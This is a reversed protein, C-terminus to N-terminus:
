KQAAPDTDGVLVIQETPCYLEIPADVHVAHGAPLTCRVVSRAAETEVSRQANKNYTQPVARMQCVGDYDTHNKGKEPRYPPVLPNVM